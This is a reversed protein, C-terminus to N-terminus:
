GSKVAMRKLLSRTGARGGARQNLHPTPVRTPHLLPGPSSSQALGLKRM